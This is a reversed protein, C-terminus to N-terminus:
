KSPIEQKYSEYCKGCTAHPKLFWLVVQKKLFEELFRVVLDPRLIIIESPSLHYLNKFIWKDMEQFLTLLGIEIYNDAFVVMKYVFYVESAPEKCFDCMQTQQKPLSMM